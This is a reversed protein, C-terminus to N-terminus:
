RSPAPTLTPVFGYIFYIAVGSLLLFMMFFGSEAKIRSFEKGKSSGVALITVLVMWIGARLFISGISDVAILEVFKYQWDRNM